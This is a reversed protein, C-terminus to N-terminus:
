FQFDQMETVGETHACELGLCVAQAVVGRAKDGAAQISRASM